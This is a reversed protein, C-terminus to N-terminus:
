AVTSGSDDLDWLISQILLFLITYLYLSGRLRRSGNKWIPVCWAIASRLLIFLSCDLGGGAVSALILAEIPFYRYIHVQIYWVPFYFAERSRMCLRISVLKLCGDRTPCSVASRGMELSTLGSPPHHFMDGITNYYFITNNEYESTLQDLLLTLYKYRYLLQQHQSDHFMHTCRWVIPIVPPNIYKQTCVPSAPYRIKRYSSDFGEWKWGTRSLFVTVVEDDMRM